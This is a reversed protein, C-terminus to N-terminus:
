TKEEGPTSTKGQLLRAWLGPSVTITRAKSYTVESITGPIPRVHKRRTYDVAVALSESSRGYYAALSSAFEIVEGPPAAKGPLRVVVHAGPINRAHFWLDEPSSLVFTVKRNAKRNTGALVKFGRFNFEKVPGSGRRPLPPYATAKLEDKLIRIEAMTRTEALRSLFESLARKSSEVRESRAALDGGDLRSKRYKRYYDQANRAVTLAPDLKIEVELYGEETWFPLTVKGAGKPIRQSHALLLDGARKYEMAKLALAARDAMGREIAKIRKIKGQIEKELLVIESRLRSRVLPLLHRERLLSLIERGAAVPEGLLTGFCSLEGGLEQLLCQEPLPGGRGHERGPLLLDEWTGSSLLHWKDRLFAALKGGMKPMVALSYYLDPGEAGRAPLEAFPREPPKYPTGPLRSSGHSGSPGTAIILGDGGLLVLDNHKGTFECLLLKEATIGAAIGRAFNLMIIRDNRLRTVGALTSGVIHKKLLPNLPSKVRESLLLEDIDEKAAACVSTFPEKWRMYLGEIARGFFLSAWGDGSEAGTCRKGLFGDRISDVILDFLEPQLITSGGKRWTKAKPGEHHRNYELGPSDQGGPRGERGAWLGKAKVVLREM